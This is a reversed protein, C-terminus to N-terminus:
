IASVSNDLMDGSQPSRIDACALVELRRLARRLQRVLHIPCFTLPSHDRRRGDHAAVRDRPGVSAIPGLEAPQGQRGDPSRSLRVDRAPGPVRLIEPTLDTLFTGVGIANVQM